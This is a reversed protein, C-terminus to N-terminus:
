LPPANYYGTVNYRLPRPYGDVHAADGAPRPLAPAQMDHAPVRTGPTETSTPRPAM